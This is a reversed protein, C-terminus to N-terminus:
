FVKREALNTVTVGGKVERLLCKYRLGFTGLAQSSLNARFGVLGLGASHGQRAKGMSVM